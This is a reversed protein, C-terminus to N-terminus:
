EDTCLRKASSVEMFDFLIMSVSSGIVRGERRKKAFFVGNKELGNRVVRVLKSVLGSGGGLLVCDRIWSVDVDNGVIWEFGGYWGWLGIGGLLGM